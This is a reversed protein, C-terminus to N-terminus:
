DNESTVFRFNESQLASGRLACGRLYGFTSQGIFAVFDDVIRSPAPSPSGSQGRTNRNERWVRCVIGDLLYVATGTNSGYSRLSITYSSDRECKRSRLDLITLDLLTSKEDNHTDTDDVRLTVRVNCYEPRRPSALRAARRSHRASWGATPKEAFGREKEEKFLLVTIIYICFVCARRGGHPEYSINTSCPRAFSEFRANVASNEESYLLARRPHRTVRLHHLDTAAGVIIECSWNHGNRRPRLGTPAYVSSNSKITYDKGDQRRACNPAATSDQTTAEPNYPFMRKLHRM